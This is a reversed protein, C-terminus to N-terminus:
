DGGLRHRARRRVAAGWSVVGTLGPIARDTRACRRLVPTAADLAVVRHSADVNEALEIEHVSDIALSRVHREVGRPARVHGAAAAADAAARLLRAHGERFFGIRRGRVHLRARMRYGEEPSAAVPGARRLALRGIRAFADAIVARKIELQRAYAIHAYLCGGCLPDGACERRDPSPEEVAVTEAYAVGKDVARDARARARRSDRRRRSVVQGEARAIM